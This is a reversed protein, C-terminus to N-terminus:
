SSNTEDSAFTHGPRREDRAPGARVHSTRIAALHQKHAAYRGVRAMSELVVIRAVNIFIHLDQHYPLAFM